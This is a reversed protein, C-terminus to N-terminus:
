MLLRVTIQTVSGSYVEPAITFEAPLGTNGEHNVPIFMRLNGRVDLSTTSDARVRIILKKPWSGDAPRKITIRADAKVSTLDVLLRQSQQLQPVPLTVGQEDEVLLPSLHTCANLCLAMALALGAPKRSRCAMFVSRWNNKGVMINAAGALHREYAAATPWL